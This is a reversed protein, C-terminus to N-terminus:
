ALLRVFAVNRTSLLCVHSGRTFVDILVMFYCFLGCIDGHIIELFVPSEFTVKSFSSCNIKHVATCPYVNFLLIKQNKLPHVHSHEIIKWIM